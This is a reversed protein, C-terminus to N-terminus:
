CTPIHIHLSELEMILTPIKDVKLMQEPLLIDGSNMRSQLERSQRLKKLLNRSRKVQDCATDQAPTATPTQAIDTIADCPPSSDQPIVDKEQGSTTSAKMNSTSPKSSNQTGGIDAIVRDESGPVRKPHRRPHHISNNRYLEIDEPPRYGPRIRIARRTSGDSRTSEPIHREGSDQDTIIGATSPKLAM